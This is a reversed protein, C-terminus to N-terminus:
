GKTGREGEAREEATLASALGATVALLFAGGADLLHTDTMGGVLIVLCSALIFFGPPRGRCRWGQKLLAWFFWGFVLLGIIGYSVAIHLINNHPHAIGRGGGGKLISQNYGGTGVGLLPNERFLDLAWRWMYIREMHLDRSWKKGTRYEGGTKLHEKVANVTFGIRYRVVPSACMIGIVVIYALIIYRVKSGHFINILMIPSLVIFTAYGGRGELIVLHLFYIIMIVGYTIQWKREKARGVYFSAVLSGLILFIALTNYGSHFGTYFKMGWAGWTPVIGAFQLFAVLANLLLGGMFAKIMREAPYKSFPISTMAFAYLWYHTKKAYKIGLGAPDASWLLGLWVLVIIAAVPWFWPANFCRQRSKIFAGSLFWLLMILIGLITFPSTGLPLVFFAGCFLYYIAAGASLDKTLRRIM